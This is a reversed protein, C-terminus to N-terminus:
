TATQVRGRLGGSAPRSTAVQKGVATAGSRPVAPGLDCASTKVIKDIGKEIQMQSEEAITAGARSRPSHFYNDGNLM